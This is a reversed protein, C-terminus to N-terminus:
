DIQVCRVKIYIANKGVIRAYKEKHSFDWTRAYSDDAGSEKSSWYWANCVDSGDGASCEAKAIEKLESLTPLRGGNARCHNVASDWNMTPYLEKVPAKYVLEGALKNDGPSAQPDTKHLQFDYVVDSVLGGDVVKSSCRATIYREDDSLKGMCNDNNPDADWAITWSVIRRAIKGSISGATARLQRSTGELKPYCVAKGSVEHEDQELRYECRATLIQGNALKVGGTTGEWGGGVAPDRPGVIATKADVTIAAESDTSKQPDFTKKAAGRSSSDGVPTRVNKAVLPLIAQLESDTFLTRPLYNLLKPLYPNGEVTKGYSEVFIEANKQKERNSKRSSLLRSLKEWDKGISEERKKRAEEAAAQELALVAARAKADAEEKERAAQEALKIDLLKVTERVGEGAGLGSTKDLCDKAAAYQGQAFYLKALNHRVMAANKQNQGPVKEWIGLARKYLPEAQAYLGREHNIVALDNLRAAVFYSESGLTREWIALSRKYRPEAQIHQGKPDNAAALPKCALVISRIPLIVLLSAMLFLILVASRYNAPNPDFQLVHLELARAAGFDKLFAELRSHLDRKKLRALAIGSVAAGSAALGTWQRWTEGAGVGVGALFSVMGMLVGIVLREKLGAFKLGLDKAIMEAGFLALLLGLASWYGTQLSPLLIGIGYWVAAMGLWSVFSAIRYSWRLGHIAGDRIKKEAETPEDMCLARSALRYADEFRLEKLAKEALADVNSVFAHIPGDVDEVFRQDTNLYVSYNNGGYKYQYEAVSCAEVAIRQRLIKGNHGARCSEIMESLLKAAPHAPLSIKEVRHTEDQRFVTRWNLSSLPNNHKRFKPLAAPIYQNDSSVPEEDIEVTKYSLLKRKGECEPCTVKRSGHCNGCTVKGHGRCTDCTIKGSSACDSCPVFYEEDEDEFLRGKGGCIDCREEEAHSIVAQALDKYYGKGECKWCKVQKQVRRTKHIQGTGDCDRCKTHGYGDCSGCSVEGSGSCDPCTVEGRAGCNPCDTVSRTDFIEKTSHHTSFDAVPSYSVSETDVYSQPERPLDQGSYPETHSKSYRKETQTTVTTKYLVHEVVSVLETDSGLKVIPSFPINGSWEDLISKCTDIAQSDTIRRTLLLDSPVVASLDPPAGGVVAGMGEKAGGSEDPLKGGEDYSRLAGDEKGAKYNQESKLRGSDYYAKAIGEKAGAKYNFQVQLTGNERYVRTTGELKGDEYNLELKVRGDEYYAKAPGEEKGNKYNTESALRGNEYYKTLGCLEGNKYNSETKLEGNEHYFKTLGSLKGSEFNSEADLKGNEYYLKTTGEQVGNEYAAEKKLAGSEYYAKRIEPGQKGNVSNKAIDRIAKLESLMEPVGPHGLEAAKNLDEIAGKEDGLRFKASGRNFYSVSDKPDFEIAKNSDEIVGPYDGVNIKADGRHCYAEANQPDLEIAKNYDEIAARNEGSDHRIDGRLIYFLVRGPDLEIARSIDAIAGPSDKKFYKAGARGYYADANKADIEIAKDYDRIAGADDGLSFLVNGRCVCAEGATPNLELARNLDELAAAENGASFKFEGRHFYLDSDAANIGIAKDFDEIAGAFDAMLRKILGRLRYGDAKSPDLAIAKDCDEIAGSFDGTGIKALAFNIHQQYETDM